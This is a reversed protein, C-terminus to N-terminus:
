RYLRQSPTQRATATNRLRPVAYAISNTFFKLAPVSQIDESRELAPTMAPLCEMRAREETSHSDFNSQIGASHADAFMTRWRLWSKGLARSSKVESEDRVQGHEHRSLFNKFRLIPSGIGFLLFVMCTRGA